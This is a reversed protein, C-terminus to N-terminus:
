MKRKILGSMLDFSNGDPQLDVFGDDKKMTRSSSIRGDDGYDDRNYPSTLGNSPEIAKCRLLGHDPTISHIRLRTHPETTTLTVEQNSIESDALPSVPTESNPSVFTAM